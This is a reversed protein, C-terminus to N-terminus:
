PILGVLAAAVRALASSIGSGKVHVTAGESAAAVEVAGLTRIEVRSGDVEVHACGLALLAALAARRM